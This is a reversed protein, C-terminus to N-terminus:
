TEVDWYMTRYESKLSNIRRIAPVRYHQEVEELALRHSEPDLAAPDEVLCVEKNKGDLVNIWRVHHSLPFARVVKARLVTKEGEIRCRLVGHPGRFLRVRAPDIAGDPRVSAPVPQHPPADGGATDENRQGVALATAVNDIQQM